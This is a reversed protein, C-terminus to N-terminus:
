INALATAIAGKLTALTTASAAASRLSRLATTIEGIEGAGPRVDVWQSDTDEDTYYVYLIGDTSDWWLEGPEPTNGPATPSIQVPVSTVGTLNSGDGFYRAATVDGAFAADGNAKLQIYDVNQAADDPDGNLVHFINLKNGVAPQNVYARIRGGQNGGQTITDLIIGDELDADM